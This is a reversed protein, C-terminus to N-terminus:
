KLSDTYQRPTMGTYEKFLASFYSKNKYGVKDAVEYVKNYPNSLMKKAEEIRTLILYDFITIGEKQRFILNAHSASIYLNSIIEEINNFNAYNEEINKKIDSIIKDYRNKQSNQNQVEQFNIFIGYVWDKIDQVIEFQLIRSRINNRDDKFVQEYKSNDGDLYEMIINVITLTLSVVYIHSLNFRDNYYKSLFDNVLVGDNSEIIEKVEKHIINIDYDPIDMKQNLKNYVLIQNSKNRLNQKVINEADFILASISLLQNGADSIGTSITIGLQEDIVKHLEEAYWILEDIIKQKSRKADTLILTISNDYQNILYYEFNEGIIKYFYKKIAEISSFRSVEKGDVYKLYFNDIQCCIAVYNQRNIVLELENLRQEMVSEDKLNGHVIDKYFAEYAYYANGKIKSKIKTIEAYKEVLEKKENSLKKLVDRLEKFNLPKLIYQYAEVDMAGKIYDFEEFCSIFVFKTEPYVSKIHKAMDIGNLIPMDVDTIIFDPKLQAALEVGEQGNYCTGALEIDMEKWNIFEIISEIVLRNDDVVMLKFM